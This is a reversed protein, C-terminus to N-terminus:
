APRHRRRTPVYGPLLPVGSIPEPTSGATRDPRRAPRCAEADGNVGAAAPASRPAHRGVEVRCAEQAM